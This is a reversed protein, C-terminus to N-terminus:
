PTILSFLASSSLDYAFVKGFFTSKVAYTVVIWRKLAPKAISGSCELMSGFSSKAKMELLTAM